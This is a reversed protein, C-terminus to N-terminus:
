CNNVIKNFKEAFNLFRFIFKCNRMPLAKKRLLEISVTADKYLPEIDVIFDYLDWLLVKSVDDRSKLIYFMCLYLLDKKTM